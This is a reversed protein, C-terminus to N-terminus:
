ASERKSRIGSPGSKRKPGGTHATTCSIRIEFSTSAVTWAVAGGGLGNPPGRLAPGLTGLTGLTGGPTRLFGSQEACVRHRGLHERLASSRRGSGSGGAQADRIRLLLLWVFFTPRVGGEKHVMRRRPAGATFSHGHMHLKSYHPTRTRTRTRTHPHTHAPTLTTHTHTHAQLQIHIRLHHCCRTTRSARGACASGWPRESGRLVCRREGGAPCAPVRVHQRALVERLHQPREDVFHQELGLPM